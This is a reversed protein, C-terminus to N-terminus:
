LSARTRRGGPQRAAILGAYYDRVHLLKAPDTITVTQGNVTYQAIGGQALAADMAAVIQEATSNTTVSSLSSISPSSSPSSTSTIGSEGGTTEPTPSSGGSPIACMNDVGDLGSDLREGLILTGRGTHHVNDIRVPLDDMDVISVQADATAIAEQAARVKVIGRPFAGTDITKSIVFPMLPDRQTRTSFDARFQLIFEALAAQYSTAYPEAADGEGQVWFAGRVDPVVGLDTVLKRKALNWKASMWPYVQNASKRFAIGGTTDQLSASPVPVKFLFVGKPHRKLLQLLLTVDPGFLAPGSATYPGTNSNAFPNYKEWSDTNHNWIFTLQEPLAHWLKVDANDALWDTTTAGQLHSQGLFFYVPVGNGPLAPTSETANLYGTWLRRGIHWMEAPAPHNQDTSTRLDSWDVLKFKPDVYELRRLADNCALMRNWMADDPVAGDPAFRRARVSHAIVPLDAPTGTALDARLDAIWQRFNTYFADVNAQGLFADNWGMSVIIARARRTYSPNGAIFAHADNCQALWESYADNASKQWRQSSGDIVNGVVGRRIRKVMWAVLLAERKAAQQLFGLEMGILKRVTADPNAPNPMVSIDYPRFTKAAGGGAVDPDWILANAIPGSYYDSDNATLAVLDGASNGGGIVDGVFYYVPVDVLAGM